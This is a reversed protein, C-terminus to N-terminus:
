PSPTAEPIGGGRHLRAVLADRADEALPPPTAADSALDRLARTAGEGPLAALERLLFRQMPLLEPQPLTVAREIQAALRGARSASPEGGPSAGAPAGPLQAATLGDAQVVCAAVPQGLSARRAVTGRRADLLTVEGRADCLAFGGAYAAGGLLDADAVHVWALAGSRADFGAAIRLYTAAFRGGEVGAAGRARPRAYLRARDSASAVPPLVETGDAMWVPAGPLGREPLAVTSARGAAGLGIAGDLRTAASAGGFFVAGGSLFAHSVPAQFVGRAVEGGTQLDFVTVYRGHWPLLAHRGVVAPVGIAADDEIQRQVMGDHGIALVVSTSGTTSVLSVVTTEGDDGAGRLRGGANRTWLLRGTRADLAFLEGQGLGVVVSGAVAPRADLPHAFTWAPGGDLPVGVLRRAGDGAVGVAVDAGLPIPRGALQQAALRQAFATIGAGGDDKWRPDFAEGHTQGGGCAAGLTALAVGSAVLLARVRASARPSRPSRM